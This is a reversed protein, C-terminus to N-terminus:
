KSKLAKVNDRIIEHNSLMLAKDLERLVGMRGAGRDYELAALNNRGEVSSPYNDLMKMYIVRAEDVKGELERALGLNVLASDYSRDMQYAEEFLSAALAFNGSVLEVCGLGDMAAALPALDGALEFSKRAEELKRERLLVIGHDVLEVAQAYEKEPVTRRPACGYLFGQLLTISLLASFTAYKM